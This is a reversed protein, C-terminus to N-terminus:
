NRFRSEDKAQWAEAEERSVEKMEISVPVVKAEAYKALFKEQMESLLAKAYNEDDCFVMRMSLTHPPDEHNVTATMWEIGKPVVIVWGLAKKAYM